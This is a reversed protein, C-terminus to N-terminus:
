KEPVCPLADSHNIISHRIETKVSALMNMVKRNQLPREDNECEPLEILELVRLKDNTTPKEIGPKEKQEDIIKYVLKVLARRGLGMRRLHDQIRLFDVQIKCKLRKTYAFGICFDIKEHENLPNQVELNFGYCSRLKTDTKSIHKKAVMREYPNAYEKMVTELSQDDLADPHCIAGGSGGIRDNYKRGWNEAIVVGTELKLRRKCFNQFKAGYTCASIAWTVRFIGAWSWHKFLNMWGRNDPHDFHEDLNLDLYVNEMLQIMQNCLYFGARREEAKEPLWMQVRPPNKLNSMLGKWEPYIQADIFALHKDNNICSIIRSLEASHKTFHQETAPSRPQWFQKLRVFLEEMNFNETIDAASHFSFYGVHFGLERYVEFQREDFWQDATSQHPFTPNKVRYEYLHTPEDGTLSSKCYFLYGIEEKIRSGCKPYKIIGMACHQRSLKKDANRKLGSIDMEIIISFDILALRILNALAQFKMDPDAEADGVIIYKCRRKLLEYVGINDFHGGDSLNIYNGSLTYHGAWERLGEWTGPAKGLKRKSSCKIPNLAWYGLRINLLGMLMRFTPMDGQGMGINVAAGSIAMATGLDIHRDADEYTETRIYGTKESGCRFKSFIFSEGKRFIPETEDHDSHDKIVKGDLSPSQKNLNLNANIIHYPGITTCGDDYLQSLKIPDKPIVRGIPQHINFDSSDAQFIYARCLRDRYFNHLSFKNINFWNNTIFLLVMGTLFAGLIDIWLPKLDTVYPIWDFLQTLFGNGLMLYNVCYGTFYLLILPALAMLIFSTMIKVWPKREKDTSVTVNKMLKPGLFALLSILTLGNHIKFHKWYVIAAGFVQIALIGLCFLMAISCCKSFIFREDLNTNKLFLFIYAFFIMLVLAATPIVLMAWWYSRVEEDADEIKKRFDAVKIELDPDHQVLEMREAMDISYNQKTQQIVFAEYGAKAGQQNELATKLGPLTSYIKYPKILKFEPVQYLGALVSAAIIIVPLIMILNFVLGRIVALMPGLYKQFLDGEATLYNSYHRLHRLPAREASDHHDPLANTKSTQRDEATASFPNAFPFLRDRWLIPTRDDNNQAADQGNLSLTEDSHLKNQDAPSTGTKKLKDKETDGSHLGSNLLATLCSGIYGGGSVTSLYDVRQLIKHKYLAQIFGLNFTASRIGGGSLCLGVLNNKTTPYDDFKENDDGGAMEMRRLAIFECEEEFVPYRNKETYFHVHKEAAM